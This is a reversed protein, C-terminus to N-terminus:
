GEMCMTCIKRSDKCSLPLNKEFYPRLTDINNSIFCKDRPKNFYRGLGQFVVALSENLINGFSLPVFDCPCVNGSADIYLHQAGAACGGVYRGEICTLANVKPLAAVKNAKRSFDKIIAREKETLFIDGKGNILAGTPMPELIRVEQIGLSSVFNLYKSLFQPNIIEKRATLQVATYFENEVSHQIANMAITFARASGRLRNHEEKSCHDLSIAIYNLGTKKLRRARKEDLGDGTTFLISASGSGVSELIVELDNRYLPEGGTFGIMCAGMEQLEKITEIWKEACIGKEDRHAKSCHWCSFGCAHTLALHASYLRPAHRYSDSINTILREFARSPFPPLFSNIIYKGNGETLKEHGLLHHLYWIVSLPLVKLAKNGLSLLPMTRKLGTVTRM